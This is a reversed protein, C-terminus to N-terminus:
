IQLQRLDGFIDWFLSYLSITVFNQIHLGIKELCTDKRHGNVSRCWVVWWECMPTRNLYTLQLCLSLSPNGEHNVLPSLGPHAAEPSSAAPRRMVQRFPFYQLPREDDDAAAASHMSVWILLPLLADMICSPDSSYFSDHIQKRM